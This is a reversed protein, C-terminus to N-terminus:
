HDVHGQRIFFFTVNVTDTTDTTGFPLLSRSADESSVMEIDASHAQRDTEDRGYRLFDPIVCTGALAFAAM